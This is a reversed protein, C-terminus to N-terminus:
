KKKNFKKNKQVKGGKFKSGNKGKNPQGKGNKFGGKAKPKPKEEESEEDDDDDEDVELGEATEDDDDDDDDEDVELGEIEDDDVEDDDDDDDMVEQDNSAEEKKSKPTKSDPKKPRVKTDKNISDVNGGVAKFESILKAYVGDLVEDSTDKFKSFGKTIMNKLKTSRQPISSKNKYDGLLKAVSSEEESLNTMNSVNQIAKSWLEQLALKEPNPPTEVKIKEGEKKLVTPKVIDKQKEKRVQVGGKAQKKPSKNKNTNMPKKASNNTKLKM